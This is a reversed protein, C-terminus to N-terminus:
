PAGVDPGDGGSNDARRPATAENLLDVVAGILVEHKVPKTLHRDFGAELALQRDRESAYATLAIAPVRGGAEPPLARVRRILSLGDEDPMGIDALMLSVSQVQELAAPVSEAVTVIMGRRELATKLMERADGDDDVVLCRVGPVAVPQCTDAALGSEIVPPVSRRRSSQGRRADARAPFRVEFTAGKGAGGSEARAAGGHLEVLHRVIALGLGLGGHRRVSSSDAQRFREFVHPVFSPPIGIGDDSVRVVVEGGQRAAGVLVHGGAQTFKVANSILNWVIQQLRDLDGDVVLPDDGAELELHISKARAAVMGTDVAARVADRVDIPALALRVKGAVFRTVDLIDNILALQAQGNREIVDLAQRATAIDLRDSRLMHTWGLIANLPTRLEHSLVALFEDKLRNAEQLELAQRADAEEAQKRLTEDHVVKSFGQLEGDPGRMATVVGRGFFRAGGRRQFWADVDSRGEALATRWHPVEPRADEPFLLACEQGLAEPSTYGFLREAGGNWTAIRGQPDLSFIAYDSVSEVVLRLQEDARRLKEEAQRRLNEEARRLLEAQWRNEETKRFLEVFVAAKARLVDGNIPTTIYDVAGMAYSRALFRDDHQATIFIIPTHASAPRSRILKATEFGDMMPMNVDLLILAFPQRLLERLAERGSRALLLARDPAELIAGLALLNEPRDDVVLIRVPSALNTDTTM